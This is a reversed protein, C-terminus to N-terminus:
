SSPSSVSCCAEGMAFRWPDSQVCTAGRTKVLRQSSQGPVSKSVESPVPRGSESGTCFAQSVKKQPSFESVVYGVSFSGFVWTSGSPQSGGLFSSHGTAKQEGALLEVKLPKISFRNTPM